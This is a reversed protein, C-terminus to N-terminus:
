VAYQELDAITKAQSVVTEKLNVIEDEMEAVRDSWYSAAKEAKEKWLDRENVARDQAARVVDRERQAVAREQQAAELKARAGYLDAECTEAAKSLREATNTVATHRGKWHSVEATLETVRRALTELTVLHVDVDGGLNGGLPIV